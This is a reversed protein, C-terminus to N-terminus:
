GGCRALTMLEPVSESTPALEAATTLTDQFAALGTDFTGDLALIAINM